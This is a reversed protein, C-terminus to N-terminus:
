VTSVNHFAIQQKLEEVTPPLVPLRPLKVPKMPGAKEEERQEIEHRTKQKAEIARYKLQSMADLTSRVDMVHSSIAADTASDSRLEDLKM